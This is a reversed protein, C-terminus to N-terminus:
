KKNLSIEAVQNADYIEFNVTSYFLGSGFDFLEHGSYRPLKHLRGYLRSQEFDPMFEFNATGRTLTPYDGSFTFTISTKKSQYRNVQYNLKRATEPM